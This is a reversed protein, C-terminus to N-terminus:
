DMPLQGAAASAMGLWAPRCGGTGNHSTAHWGDAMRRCGNNRPTGCALCPTTCRARGAQACLWCGRNVDPWNHPVLRATLGKRKM